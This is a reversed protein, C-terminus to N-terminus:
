IARFLLLGLSVLGYRWKETGVASISCLARGSPDAFYITLDIDKIGSSRFLSEEDPAVPLDISLFAFAALCKVRFSM